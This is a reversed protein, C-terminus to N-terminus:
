NVGSSVAVINFPVFPANGALGARWEMAVLAVEYLV